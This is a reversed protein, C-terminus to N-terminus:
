VQQLLRTSDVLGRVLSGEVDEVLDDVPHTSILLLLVEDLLRLGVLVQGIPVKGHRSHIIALLKLVRSFGHVDHAHRNLLLITLLALCPLVPNFLPHEHAHRILLLIALFALCPLM